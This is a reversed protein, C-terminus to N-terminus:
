GKRKVIIVSTIIGVFAGIATAVIYQLPTPPAAENLARMLPYHDINNYDIVYPRDGIGDSGPQDQNPGSKEDVGNYDSWYNGGSPYGNDWVNISVDYSYVQRTNNIFNNHYIRNNSSSELYIGYYNNTINNGSIVNNSSYYLVIGYWNNAVINNGSISNNSSDVLDIGYENNAVNNGSITINYSKSLDIGTKFNIINTNKITVNSRGTLDIGKGSGAGELTHGAGDVVIDDKEIVISGRIDGTFTYVDGDRRIPATPPDVSGDARIYVTGTWQAELPQVKIAVLLSSTLLLLLWLSSAVAKRL